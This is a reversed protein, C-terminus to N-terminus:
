ISMVEVQLFFRSLALGGTRKQPEQQSLHHCYPNLKWIINGGTVLSYGYILELSIRYELRNWKEDWTQNLCVNIIYDM